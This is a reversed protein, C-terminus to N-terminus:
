SCSPQYVVIAGPSLQQEHQASTNSAEFLGLVRSSRRMERWSQQWREAEVQDRVASKDVGSYDQILHSALDPLTFLGNAQLDYPGKFPSYLAETTRVMRDEDISVWVRNEEQESSFLRAGEKICPLYAYMAAPMEQRGLPWQAKALEYAVRCYDAEVACSLASQGEDDIMSQDAGAALLLKM